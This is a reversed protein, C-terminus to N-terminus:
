NRGFDADLREPLAGLRCGVFRFQDPAIDFGAPWCGAQAM